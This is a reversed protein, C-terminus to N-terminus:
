SGDSAVRAPTGYDRTGDPRLRWSVRWCGGDGTKYEIVGEVDRVSSAVITGMPTVIGQQDAAFQEAPTAAGSGCGAAAAVVLALGITPLQLQTM